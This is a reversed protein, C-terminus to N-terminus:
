FTLRPGSEVLVATDSSPECFFEVSMALVQTEQLVHRIVLSWRAKRIKSTPAQPCLRDGTGLDVGTARIVTAQPDYLGFRNARLPGLKFEDPRSPAGSPRKHRSGARNVSGRAM